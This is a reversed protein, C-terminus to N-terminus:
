DACKGPLVQIDKFSSIKRLLAAAKEAKERTKKTICKRAGKETTWMAHHHDPPAGARLPAACATGLMCIFLLISLRHMTTTTGIHHEHISAM